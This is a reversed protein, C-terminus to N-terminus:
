DKRDCGEKPIIVLQYGLGEFLKVANNINPSSKKREYRDIAQNFMGIKDGFQRQTLEEKHRLLKLLEAFNDSTLILGIRSNWETLVTEKLTAHVRKGLLCERCRILYISEDQPLVDIQNNGCLPCPKFDTSEFKM